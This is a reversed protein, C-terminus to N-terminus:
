VDKLFLSKSIINVLSDEVLITFKTKEPTHTKVGPRLWLRHINNYFEYNQVGPLMTGFIYIEHGGLYPNQSQPPTLITLYHQHM